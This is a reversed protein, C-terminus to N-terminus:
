RAASTPAAPPFIRAWSKGEDLTSYLTGLVQVLVEQADAYVISGAFDDTVLPTGTAAWQAGGNRTTQLHNTVKSFGASFIVRYGTDPDMWYHSGSPAQDHKWTRGADASRSHLLSNGNQRTMLITSDPFQQWEKVWFDQPQESLGFSSKDIRWVTSKRMIGMINGPVILENPSSLILDPFADLKAVERPLEAADGLADRVWYRSRMAGREATVILAGSTGRPELYVVRGTDGPLRYERWRQTDSRVFYRGYDGGAVQRGDSTRATSFITSLTDVPEHVWQRPGARRVVQGLHSGGSLGEASTRLYLFSVQSRATELTQREQQADATTTWGRGEPLELAQRGSEALLTDVAHQRGVPGSLLFMQAAQEKELEPAYVLTGLNALKGSEVVFPSAKPAKASDSALLAPILGPGPGVSGFGTIDYQGTPLKAFYLSETAFYKGFFFVNSPLTVDVMEASRGQSTLKITQWKPNILSIPRLAIVRLIAHGETPSTGLDLDVGQATRKVASNSACGVLALVLAGLVCWYGTQRWRM